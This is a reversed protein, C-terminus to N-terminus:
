KQATQPAGQPRPTAANQPTETMGVPRLIVLKARGERGGPFFLQKRTPDYAISYGKVDTPLEHDAAGKALDIALISGDGAAAYLLNDSTDLILTDTGGPAPIRSIESGNDANLVLVAYRVAVYLRRRGPDLALGTPESASLRFRDVIRNSGDLAAIENIDQLSVLLQQRSVDYLIDKPLAGLDIVATETGIHTDVISLTRARTSTVFLTKTEPVWLLKEPANRVPVLQEVQWNKSNVVAIRNSGALAIYVREAADDVAIGRPNDVQSIRAVVRRKVPSFIEVTNTEPHTIVVQGNALAVENFGPNGPLDVMAVQKLRTASALISCSLIFVFLKRMIVPGAM